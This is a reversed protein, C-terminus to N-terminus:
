EEKWKMFPDKGEAQFAYANGILHFVSYVYDTGDSTYILNDDQIRWEYSTTEGEFTHYVTGDELIEDSGNHINGTTIWKGIIIEAIEKGTMPSYESIHEKLYNNRAYYNNPSTDLLLSMLELLEPDTKPQENLDKYRLNYTFTEINNTQDPSTPIGIKLVFSKDTNTRVADNVFIYTFADEGKYNLPDEIEFYRRAGFEYKEEFGVLGSTRAVPVAHGEVGSFIYGDDYDVEIALEVTGKAKGTYDFHYSIKLISYGDEAFVDQYTKKTSPSWMNTLFGNKILDVYEVSTVTLDCIESHVTDGVNLVLDEPEAELAPEPTAPTDTEAPTEVAETPEPTNAASEAPASTEKTTDGGGCAVMSLVMVCALLMAIRKKM